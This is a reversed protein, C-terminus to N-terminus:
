KKKGAIRLSFEICARVTECYAGGNGIEDKGKFVAMLVRLVRKGTYIENKINNHEIANGFNVLVTKNQKKTKNAM